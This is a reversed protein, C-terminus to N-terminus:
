IESIVCDSTNLLCFKFNFPKVKLHMKYQHTYVKQKSVITKSESEDSFYSGSNDFVEIESESDNLHLESGIM